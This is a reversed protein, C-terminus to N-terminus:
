NQLLESPGAPFCHPCSLPPPVRHAQGMDGSAAHLSIIGGGPLRTAEELLPFPLPQQPSVWPLFSEQGPKLLKLFRLTMGSSLCIGLCTALTPSSNEPRDGRFDSSLKLFTFCTM